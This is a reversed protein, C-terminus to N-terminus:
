FGDCKFFAIIEIPERLDHLINKSQESLTHQQQQTLDIRQDFRAALMNSTTYLLGGMAILLIRMLINKRIPPMELRSLFVWASILLTGFGALIQQLFDKNLAQFSLNYNKAM